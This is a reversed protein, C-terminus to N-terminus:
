PLLSHTEVPNSNRIYFDRGKIIEEFTISMTDMANNGTDYKYSSMMTNQINTDRHHISGLDYVM